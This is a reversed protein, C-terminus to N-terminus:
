AESKWERALHQQQERTKHIRKIRLVGWLISSLIVVVVSGYTLYPSSSTMWIVVLGIFSIAFVFTLVRENLYGITSKHHKQLGDAQAAKAQASAIGIEANDNM